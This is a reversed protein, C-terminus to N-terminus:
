VRTLLSQLDWKEDITSPLLLKSGRGEAKRGAMNPSLALALAVIGTNAAEASSAAQSINEGLVVKENVREYLHESQLDWRVPM